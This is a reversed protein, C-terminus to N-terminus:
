EHVRGMQTVVKTAIPFRDTSAAESLGPSRAHSRWTRGTLAVRHQGPDQKSLTTRVQDM